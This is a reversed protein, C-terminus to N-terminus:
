KKAFMQRILSVKPEDDMEKKISKKNKSLHSAEAGKEGENTKRLNSLKKREAETMMWAFRQILQVDNYRM